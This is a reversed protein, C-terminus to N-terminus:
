ILTAFSTTFSTKKSDKAKHLNKNSSKKMISVHNVKGQM